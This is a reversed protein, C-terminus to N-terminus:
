DKKMNSKKNLFSGKIIAVNGEKFSKGKEIKLPFNFIM